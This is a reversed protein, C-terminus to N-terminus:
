FSFSSPLEHNPKVSKERCTYDELGMIWGELGTFSGQTWLKGERQLKWSAVALVVSDALDPNKLLLKLDGQPVNLIASWEPSKLKEILFQPNRAKLGFVTRWLLSPYGEFIWPGDQLQPAPEDFPFLQFWKEEAQGLDKWIRFSGTSINKQYPRFQFVSNAGALAECKRAAIVEKSSTLFRSFFAEAVERGYQRDKVSFQAAQQFLQFLDKTKKPTHNAPLGLVSDVAIMTKSLDRGFISLGLLTKLVSERNLSQLTLARGYEDSFYLRDEHVIAMPLAKAKLGKSDTAGTQDLGIFSKFSVSTKAM